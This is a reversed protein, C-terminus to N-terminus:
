YYDLRIHTGPPQMGTPTERVVKGPGGAFIQHPDAVFGANNIEKIAQQIPEDTVNPVPRPAPGKSVVVTVTKGADVTTGAAPNTSMVRGAPVKDDYKDQRQAVLGIGRLIAAADDYTRQSVDPVKVPRPGKSVILTVGKEVSVTAGASPNTRIVDGKGVVKSYVEDRGAVTLNADRLATTAAHVSQGSVDPVQVTSPGRSLHLTITAGRHVRAGSGPDQSVV